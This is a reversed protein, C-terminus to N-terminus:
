GNEVVRVRGGPILRELQGRVVHNRIKDAASNEQVVRGRRDFYQRSTDRRRDDCHPCRPNRDDCFLRQFLEPDGVIPSRLLLPRFELSGGEAEAVPESGTADRSHEVVVGRRVDDHHFEQRGVCEVPLALDCRSPRVGVDAVPCSLRETEPM